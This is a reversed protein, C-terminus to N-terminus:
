SRSGGGPGRLIRPATFDNNDILIGAATRPSCEKLYRRQGEVYRRNTPAAPDPSGLRPDRLIIRPISIEFAADLFVSQDWYRRLEPCHLFVGDFVLIADPSAQRAPAYVREDSVYDFIAEHYAGSGGPSLPDLLADRLGAYDFSDLFFGDPSHRGLRYRVVAPHHFDDISARVVQRGRSALVEALTDAFSTKGAGDVGDIGVRTVRDLGLALAADAM